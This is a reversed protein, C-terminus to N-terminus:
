VEFIIKEEALKTATALLVKGREFSQRSKLIGPAFNKCRVTNNSECLIEFKKGIMSNLLKQLEVKGQLILDKTRHKIIERAVQPMKAAPTGTHPSFPFIHCFSLGAEEILNKSNLFNEETETPFGAIIDAGFAVNERLKRAQLVFKLVDERKHRRKMRKLILDDGSQLSIHFYPMFRPENAILDYIDNDIEAVDISSFRLRELQPIYSLLRKTMKGLTLGGVIDKGYDTIDVGTLVIEKYGNEVLTKVENALLGFPVSRSNGRAFPIICFTCRHNCGNQIQVFARTHNQFESVVDTFQTEKISMIDNVLIKDNFEGSGQTERFFIKDEHRNHEIKNNKTLNPDIRTANQVINYTQDILKEKNGFVLEVEEMKAFVEPHIQAACGTVVVRLSPNHKKLKKIKKIAEKEAEQTVSCTNLIVINKDVGAKLAKAKIAESEYANLRCGFTIVESM